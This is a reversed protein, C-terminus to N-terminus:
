RKILVLLQRAVTQDARFYVLDERRVHKFDLYNYGMDTLHDILPLTKLQGKSNRWAPVALCMQQGPKLQPSINELFKKTITNADSIIKNLEDTAPLKTLPRGLFVESAVLSFGPWKHTTADGTEVVAQTEIAPYKQVLWRLNEETYETMRPELDTGIVSYGMLMAEQLVVGTGCFPDLVRIRARTVQRSDSGTAGDTTKASQQMLSEAVREDYKKYTKSQQEDKEQTGDLRTDSQIKREISGAALNIIIQALKPPLMGVKADRAPRARDRAAYAEINQVFLTQALITQEGNKIFLLEWAGRQTLNNHLVQASNLDLSKNPVVRVPRGTTKVLKKLELSTRNLDNLRINLGYISLGLTFKGGPMYQMHEPITDRLYSVIKKWDTYPLTTLIRATKITGGLRKFNIDEASIDLLAHEGLPRVHDAGFLSELEALGLAPQRGLICISKAKFDTM